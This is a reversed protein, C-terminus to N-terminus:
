SPDLIFFIYYGDLLDGISAHTLCSLARLRASIIIRNLLLRLQSAVLTEQTKLLTWLTSASLFFSDKQVVRSVEIGLFYKLKGMDKMSFCKSLYEKFKQVMRSDNGSILLDDVYILVCLQIGKRSYCFLSSDDYSQIFGFKLLADSLKKFWCRPAQKLGYM